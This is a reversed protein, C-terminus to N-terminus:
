PRVATEASSATVGWGRTSGRDPDVERVLAERSGGVKSTFHEPLPSVLSSSVSVTVSEGAAAGAPPESLDAIDELRHLVEVMTPREEPRDAWCECILTALSGLPVPLLAIPPRESNRAALAAQAGELHAFVRQGHVIEYMLMGFAYVDRRAAADTLSPGDAAAGDVMASRGDARTGDARTAHVEPAMYRLTGATVGNSAGGLSALGFDTIKCVTHTANLLANDTKVDRHYVSNSHLFSLGSALQMCFSLLMDVRAGQMLPTPPRSDRLTGAAETRVADALSGSSVHAAPESAPGMQHPQAVVPVPSSAPANGEGHRRAGQRTSFIHLIGTLSRSSPAAARASQHTSASEGLRAKHLFTALSGGAMYELVLAPHCDIMTMGFMICICPHRLRLMLAESAINATELNKNFIKVALTMGQWRATWVTAFGGRGVRKLRTLTSFDVEATQLDCSQLDGGTSAHGEAIPSPAEILTLALNGEVQVMKSGTRRCRRWLVLGAVAIILGVVCFLVAAGATAGSHPAKTSPPSQPLVLRAAFADTSGESTILDTGFAAAGEFNGMVIASGATESVIGQGSTFVSGGTRIAWAFIGRSSVLAIFADSGEDDAASSEAALSVAGFTANGRFKGTVLVGDTGYTSLGYGCDNLEGGGRVAWKVDGREDVKVVFADDMGQSILTTSGFHATGSFSGTVYAGGERDSIVRRAVDTQYGGVGVAWVFVGAASIRAVVADMTDGRSALRHSGFASRGTYYGAIFAGGAGDPAASYAGNDLPGGAQAAWEIGGSSNVLMVYIDDRNNGASSLITTGFTASGHFSGAVFAGAAGDSAMGFAGAGNTGGAQVVWDVANFDDLRLVFINSRGWSTLTTAGFTATDSFHGAVLMGDFFGRKSLVVLDQCLGDITVRASWRVSGEHDVHVAFCNIWGQFPLSSTTTTTMTGVVTANAQYSGLLLVGGRSDTKMNSMTDFRRGGVRVAWEAPHNFPQEEAKSVTLGGALLLALYHARTRRM